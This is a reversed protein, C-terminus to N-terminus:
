YYAFCIQAVCCEFQLLYLLRYIRSSSVFYRVIEFALIFMGLEVQRKHLIISSLFEFVLFRPDYQVLTKLNSQNLNADGANHQTEDAVPIASTYHRKASLDDVRHILVPLIHLILSKFVVLFFPFVFRPFLLAYLQMGINAMLKVMVGLSTTSATPVHQQKMEGIASLSPLQFARGIWYCQRKALSLMSLIDSRQLFTACADADFRARHFAFYVVQLRDSDSVHHLMAYATSNPSSSSSPTTPKTAEVLTNITEIMALLTSITKGMDYQSDRLATSIM